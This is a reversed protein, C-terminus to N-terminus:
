DEDPFVTLWDDKMSIFTWGNQQAVEKGKILTGALLHDNYLFERDNDDHVVYACFTPLTNNTAAYEMMELDGDSNGFIMIPKKGIHKDISIIKGEHDDNFEFEKTQAISLSDENEGVKRKFTSGIINEEPIGYTEPAWARMFEQSGGSVIYIKFDHSRLVDLIQLMPSYVLDTYKRQLVPHHATDLWSNVMGSFDEVDDVAHATGVLTIVDEKTIKKLLDSDDEIVAKYPMENMWEPHDSAISRIRDIAFYVQSPLPQEVWLTGDNDFCAIRDEPAVYNASTSDIVDHIFDLIATKAKGEKFFSMQSSDREYAQISNSEKSSKCSFIVIALAITM